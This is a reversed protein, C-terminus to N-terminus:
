YKSSFVRYMHLKRYFEKKKAMVWLEPLYLPFDQSSRSKLDRIEPNRLLIDEKSYKM